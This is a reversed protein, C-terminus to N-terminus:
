PFPRRHLSSAGTQEARRVTSPRLDIDCVGAGPHQLLHIAVKSAGLNKSSWCATRDTVSRPPSRKLDHEIDRGVPTVRPV